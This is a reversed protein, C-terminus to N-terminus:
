GVNGIVEQNIKLMWYTKDRNGDKYSKEQKSEIYYYYLEKDTLYQNIGGISRSACGDMLNNQFFNKINEINEEFLKKDELRNFLEEIKQNDYEKEISVPMTNNLGLKDCICKVFHRNNYRKFIEDYLELDYKYKLQVSPKPVFCLNGNENVGLILGNHYYNSEYKQAYEVPTLNKTDNVMQFFDNMFGIRGNLTEQVYDMIYLNITDNEDIYRKRGICQIVTTIDAYDCIIHKINRDKFNVGNDLVSTTLLIRKSFTENGVIEREVKNKDVYQKYYYGKSESCVFMCEDEYQNYLKEMYRLDSCFYIIKEGQPLLGLLRNIGNSNRFYYFKDVQPPMQIDFTNEENFTMWRELIEPTATMFIVPHDIAELISMLKYTTSNKLVSDTFFYHAEDAFIYDYERMIRNAYDLNQELAQYTMVTIVDEKGECEREIQQKLYRRNILILIRKHNQKGYQYCTNVIFTTKGTGCSSKILIRDNGRWTDIIDATILDSVYM